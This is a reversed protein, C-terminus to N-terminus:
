ILLIYISKSNANKWFCFIFKVDNTVKNKKKKKKKAIKSLVVKLSHFYQKLAFIKLIKKKLNELGDTYLSFIPIANKLKYVHYFLIYLQAM